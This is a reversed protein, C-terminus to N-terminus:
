DALSLVTVDTHTFAPSLWAAKLLTSLVLKGALFGSSFRSFGLLVDLHDKWTEHLMYTVSATFIGLFIGPFRICHSNQLARGREQQEKCM